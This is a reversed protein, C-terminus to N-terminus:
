ESKWTPTRISVVEFSPINWFSMTVGVELDSHPNFSNFHPQLKIGWIDSRSGLRLASQFLHLLYHMPAKRHDSRSGLRLASQFMQFTSHHMTTKTVGVELDSHPNFSDHSACLYRPSPTVGVGTRNYGTSNWSSLLTLYTM